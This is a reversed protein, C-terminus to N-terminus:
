IGQQVQISFNTWVSDWLWNDFLYTLYEEGELAVADTLNFQFWKNVFNLPSPQQLPSPGLVPFETEDTGGIEEGKEQQGAPVSVPWHPHTWPWGHFHM